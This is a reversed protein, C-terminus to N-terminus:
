VTFRWGVFYPLSHILLFGLKVPLFKQGFLIPEQLQDGLGLLIAALGVPFGSLIDGVLRGIRVGLFKEEVLAIVVAPQQLQDFFSQRPEIIAGVALAHGAM